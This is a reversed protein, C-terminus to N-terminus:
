CNAVAGQRAPAPCPPHPPRRPCRPGAGACPLTKVPLPPSTLPPRRRPRPAPVPPPLPPRPGLFPAPPPGRLRLALGPAVRVRRLGRHDVQRIIESVFLSDVFLSDDDRNTLKKPGYMLLQPASRSPGGAPGEGQGERRRQRRRATERM